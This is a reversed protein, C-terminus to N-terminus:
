NLIIDAAARAGQTALDDAAMANIIYSPHTKQRRCPLLEVVQVMRINIISFWFAFEYIKHQMHFSQSGTLKSAGQEIWQARWQKTHTITMILMTLVTHWNALSQGYDPELPGYVTCQQTYTVSNVVPWTVLTMLKLLTIWLASRNLIYHDSWLLFTYM